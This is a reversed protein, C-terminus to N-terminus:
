RTATRIWPTTASRSTRAARRRDAHVLWERRAVHGARHLSQAHRLHEDDPAYARQADYGLVNIGAAVNRVINHEFRVNEVVCWTCTGGSNRPTFVISYGPQSEKWHNEFINDEIVVNRANKLEFINKVSWLTGASTPVAESTGAAGTDIFETGTVSWYTSEAGPTRGYVRYETAGAIPRGACACACRRATTTVQVETSATSRTMTGSDSCGARSSAIATPAPPWRAAPQDCGRHRGAADAHAPRALVDPRSFYNGRFTIGDAVLNPIAPDSGGFLVNEGAAELYNNEIVYPGPGNWGGIAQTDQGVGKCDSVYSDSITVTAANLAIGRKQGLHPDGHVYVHNLM